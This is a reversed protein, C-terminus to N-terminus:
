NVVAAKSPPKKMTDLCYEKIGSLEDHIQIEGNKAPDWSIILTPGLVFTPFPAFFAVPLISLPNELVPVSPNM